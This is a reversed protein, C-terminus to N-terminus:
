RRTVGKQQVIHEDGTVSQRRGKPFPHHFPHRGEMDMKPEIVFGKEDDGMPKKPACGDFHLPNGSLRDSSLSALFIAKKRSGITRKIATV